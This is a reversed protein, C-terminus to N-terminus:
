ARGNGKVGGAEGGAYAVGYESFCNQRHRSCHQSLRWIRGVPLHLAWTAAKRVSAHRGTGESTVLSSSASVRISGHGLGLGDVRGRRRVQRMMAVTLPASRLSFIMAVCTTPSRPGRPHQQNQQRGTLPLHAVVQSLQPLSRRRQSQTPLCETFACVVPCVIADVAFVGGPSLPARYSLNTRPDDCLCQNALTCGPARSKALQM